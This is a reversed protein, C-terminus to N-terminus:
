PPRACSGRAARAERGPAAGASLRLNLAAPRQCRLHEAGPVVRCGRGLAPPGDGLQQELAVADDRALLHERLAVLAAERRQVVGERLELREADAAAAVEDLAHAPRLERQRARDLP